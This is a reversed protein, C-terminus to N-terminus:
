AVSPLPFAEAGAPEGRLVRVQLRKLEPAPDVGLETSLLQRLSQYAQLAEARRGSLYLANILQAHFWENLPFATVLTRLEAILDRYRGLRMAAQVMLELARTRLETLHAIHGELVEGVAMGDLAPGGWLALAAHLRDAAQAERGDEYEERAVTVLRSFAHADVSEPPVDLRYGGPRTVIMAEGSEGIERVFLRRLQYVYTQTTTAASRPPNDGWLEAFITDTTVVATSRLLLLALLSQVKPAGPTCVRDGNMVDIGGLVRFRLMIRAKEEPVQSHTLGM